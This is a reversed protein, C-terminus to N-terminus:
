VSRPLPSPRTTPGLGQPAKIRDSRELGGQSGHQQDRELPEQHLPSPRTSPGLGQPAEDDGGLHSKM